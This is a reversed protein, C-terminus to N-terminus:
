PMQSKHFSTQGNAILVLYYTDRVWVSAEIRINATRKAVKHAWAKVQNAPIALSYSSERGSAYHTTVRLTLTTASTQM